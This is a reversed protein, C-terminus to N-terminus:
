KPDGPDVTQRDVPRQQIQEYLARVPAHSDRMKRFIALERQADESRGLKIYAQSL